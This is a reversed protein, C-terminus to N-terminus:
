NVRIEVTADKQGELAEHATARVTYTGAATYAHRFLVRATRAGATAYQDVNGDGFDIDVGILSGGQASVTFTLSDGPVTTAASAELGMTFPLPELSDSCAIVGAAIM